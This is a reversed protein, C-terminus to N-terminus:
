QFGKEDTLYYDYYNNNTKFTSCRKIALRMIENEISFLYYNDDINYLFNFDTNFYINYDKNNKLSKVEDIKNTM